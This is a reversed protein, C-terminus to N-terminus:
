SNMSSSYINQTHDTKIDVNLYLELNSDVLLFHYQDRM